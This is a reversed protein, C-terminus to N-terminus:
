RFVLAGNQFRSSLSFPVLQISARSWSSAAAARQVLRQHGFACLRRCLAARGRRFEGLDARAFQQRQEIEDAVGDAAEGLGLQHKRMAGGIRNGLGGEQDALRQMQVRVLELREGGRADRCGFAFFDEIQDRAADRRSFGGGVEDVLDVHAAQREIDVLAGDHRAREDAFQQLLM